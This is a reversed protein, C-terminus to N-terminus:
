FRVCRFIEASMEWLEEIQEPTTDKSIYAERLEQDRQELDEPTGKRLPHCIHAVAERGQVYACRTQRLEQYAHLLFKVNDRSRLRSFLNGLVAADEIAM